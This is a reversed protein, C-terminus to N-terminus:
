EATGSGEAVEYEAALNMQRAKANRSACDEDASAKDKFGKIGDTPEEGVLKVYFRYERAKVNRQEAM